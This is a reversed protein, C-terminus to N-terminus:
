NLKLKHIKIPFPYFNLSNPNQPDHRYNVFAYGDFRDAGEYTCFWLFGRSDQFICSITSQSLGDEVTLSTFSIDEVSLRSPLNIGNEQGPGQKAVYLPFSPPSTEKRSCAALIISASCVVVLLFIQKNRLSHNIGMM